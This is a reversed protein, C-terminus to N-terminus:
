GRRVVTLSPSGVSGYAEFFGSVEDAGVGLVLQRRGSAGFGEDVSSASVVTVGRLAPDCGAPCRGGDAPLVYLDVVSGATVAPPV